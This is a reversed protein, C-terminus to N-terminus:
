PKTAQLFATKNDHTQICNFRFGAEILSQKVKETFQMPMMAVVRGAPKLVRYWEKTCDNLNEMAYQISNYLAIENVTNNEFDMNDWKLIVDSCKSDNHARVHTPFVNGEDYPTLHLKINNNHRKLNVLSNRKFTVSSYNEEHEFTGEAYHYIPFSGAYIKKDKKELPEGPVMKHKYGAKGARVCFDIDEGSGPSFIEDLIGLEDFLKKPVMACFFVIFTSQTIKDGLILPGTIGMKPDDIFPEEMIDLWQNKKQELLVTDNNLLVFYEGQAAKIGLNTAKTYGLGKEEAILKINPYTLSLETVYNHTNDVCGNAVVIVEATELDTYKIISQLCPALFDELHNYTPIIISYKLKM